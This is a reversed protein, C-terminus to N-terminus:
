GQSGKAKLCVVDESVSLRAEGALSSSVGSAVELRWSWMRAVFCIRAWVLSRPLQVPGAPLPPQGVAKSTSCKLGSEAKAEVPQWDLKGSWDMCIFVDQSVATGCSAQSAFAWGWWGLFPKHKLTHCLHPSWTKSGRPYAISLLASFLWRPVEPLRFREPLLNQDGCQFGVWKYNKHM